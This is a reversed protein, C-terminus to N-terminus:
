RKRPKSDADYNSSCGSLIHSFYSGIWIHEGNQQNRINIRRQWAAKWLDTPILLIDADNIGGYHDSLYINTEAQEKERGFLEGFQDM